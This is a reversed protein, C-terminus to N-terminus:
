FSYALSYAPEIRVTDSRCGLDYVKLTRFEIMPWVTEHVLRFSSVRQVLRRIPYRVKIAPDVNRALTAHVIGPPRKTAGLLTTERVFASRMRHMGGGERCTVFAVGNGVELTDFALTFPPTLACAQALAGDYRPYLRRLLTPKADDYAVMPSLWDLLTIHRASPPVIWAHPDVRRIIEVADAVAPRHNVPVNVVYGSVESGIMSGM